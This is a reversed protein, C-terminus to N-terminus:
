SADVNTIDWGQRGGEFHPSNFTNNRNGFTGTTVLEGDDGNIQSAFFNTIRNNPGSLRYRDQSLVSSSPGFRLTDGDLHTDGEVASVAVRGRLPASGTPTCFGSVSAPQGDQPELGVFLSLNRTPLSFNEYVIALTWGAVNFDTESASQTGPVGG